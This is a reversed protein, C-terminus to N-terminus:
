IYQCACRVSWVCRIPLQIDINSRIQRNLFFCLLRLRSFFYSFKHFDLLEAGMLSKSQVSFSYTYTNRVISVLVAVAPACRSMKNKKAKKREINESQTWEANLELRRKKTNIFSRIDRRARRVNVYFRCRSIRLVYYMRNQCQLRAVPAWTNTSSLSLFLARSRAQDCESGYKCILQIDVHVHSSLPPPALKAQWFGCEFDSAIIFYM